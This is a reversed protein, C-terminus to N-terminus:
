EQVCRVPLSFARSIINNGIYVRSSGFGLQAGNVSNSSEHSSYWVYGTLNVYYLSGDSGYRCGSLPCFTSKSTDNNFYFTYGNSSSSFYAYDDKENWATASTKKVGTWTDSPAVRWGAPCPDYITKKGTENVTGWPYPDVVNNSLNNDGWLCNSVKWNDSNLPANYIWNYGSSGSFGVFTGPNKITYGISTQASIGMTAQNGEAKAVSYSTNSGNYLTPETNSWDKAGPFPDKRGFQYFLSGAGINGAVDTSLAGLNRDMIKITRNKKGTETYWSYGEVNTSVEIATTSLNQLSIGATRWIHWSWLINQSADRVAILANGKSTGTKFKVLGTSADWIVWDILGQSTQWVVVADMVREKPIDVATTAGDIPSPFLSINDSPYQLAVYDMTNGNGRVTGDFSYWQNDAAALYCNAKGAESLNIANVAIDVRLDAVGTANLTINYTYQYNRKINFNNSNNAGLYVRWTVNVNNKMGNIEVYSAHTPANVVNKDKQHDDGVAIATNVGRRNEYMYFTTTTGATLAVTSSSIWNSTTSMADDGAIANGADSSDDETSTPRAVYYAKSPLDHVTYNTIIIGSGDAISVNLTVKAVLRKLSLSCTSSSTSVTVNTESGSMLLYSGNGVDDYSSLLATTQAELGAKTAVASSSFLGSNGTNAIGYVTYGSGARVTMQLSAPSATPSFYQHGTLVGDANYVLLHIDNVTNEDITSRTDARNPGDASLEFRLIGMPAEKKEDSIDEALCGSLLFLLSLLLTLLSFPERLLNVHLPCANGKRLSCIGSRLARRNEKGTMRYNVKEKNM